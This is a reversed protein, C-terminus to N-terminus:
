TISQWPFQSPWHLRHQTRKHIHCQELHSLHVTPIAKSSLHQGVPMHHLIPNNRVASALLAARSAIRHQKVCDAASATTPTTFRDATVHLVCSSVYAHLTLVARAGGLACASRASQASTCCASRLPLTTAAGAGV